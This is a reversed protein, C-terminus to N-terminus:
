NVNEGVTHTEMAGVDKGVSPIRPITLRKIKTMGKLIYLYRMTSKIQVRSIAFSAPCTKYTVKDNRTEEKIFHQSMSRVQKEVPNNTTKKNIQLFENQNSTNCIKEGM